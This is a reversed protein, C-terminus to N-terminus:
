RKEPSGSRSGGRAPRADRDKAKGGGSAGGEIKWIPEGTSDVDPVKRLKKKVEKDEM